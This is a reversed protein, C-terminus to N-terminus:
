QEHAYNAAGPLVLPEAGIGAGHYQTTHRDPLIPVHGCWKAEEATM